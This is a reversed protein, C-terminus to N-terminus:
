GQVPAGDKLDKAPAKVVREGADLGKRVETRGDRTEGTELYRQAIRGDKVVFAKVRDGERVLAEAAVVVGPAEGVALRASAFMGPRLRGGPNPVEAEVVFDRAQDRLGGALFKVTGEFREGPFAAVEFHVRQQRQIRALAPEPVNLTLRLPGSSVLRAVKSDPRVYEGVQLSREVVVGAFPARIVTDTLTKRARDRQAKAAQLASERVNAQTQIRDFDARTIARRDLLTRGRELDLRAQDASAKSLQLNAEAEKLGLRFAADDLRALPSGKGVVSGREVLIAAVKGSTDAALWADHEGKLEGTLLLHVPLSRGEAAETTVAVPTPAAPGKTKTACGTLVALTAVLAPPSLRNM